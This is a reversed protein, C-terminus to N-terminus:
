DKNDLPEIVVLPMNAEISEGSQCNIEVVKGSIPAQIENQMKMAELIMIVQGQEVIQELSVNLSVIKGPISSSIKGSLKRKSGGRKRTQKSNSGGGETKVNFSVGEIEVIWSNGNREMIVEFDEEDVTIKRKEKL